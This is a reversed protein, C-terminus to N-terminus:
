DEKSEILNPNLKQITEKIKELTEKDEAIIMFNRIYLKMEEGEKLSFKGKYTHPSNLYIQDDSFIDIEGILPFLLEQLKLHIGKVRTEDLYGQSVTLVDLDTDINPVGRTWSGFIILGKLNPAVEKLQSFKNTIAYSISKLEQLVNHEQTYKDRSIKDEEIEKLEQSFFKVLDTTRGLKSLKKIIKVAKSVVGELDDGWIHFIEPIVWGFFEQYGWDGLREKEKYLSELNRWVEWLEKKYDEKNIEQVLYSGKEKLVAQVARQFDSKVRRQRPSFYVNGKGQNFTINKNREIKIIEGRDVWSVLLQEIESINKGFKEALEQANYAKGQNQLLFSIVPNYERVRRCSFPEQPTFRHNFLFFGISIFCFGIRRFLNKMKIMKFIIKIM